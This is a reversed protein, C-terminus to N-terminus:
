GDRWRPGLLGAGYLVLIALAVTGLLTILWQIFKVWWTAPHWNDTQGLPFLPFATEAAYLLPIFQPHNEPREAGGTKEGRDLYVVPHTPHMRLAECQNWHNKSAEVAVGKWLSFTKELSVGCPLGSFLIGGLFIIGLFWGFFRFPRYGYGITLRLVWYWGKWWWSKMKQQRKKELAFGADRAWNTHGTARFVQMLQEYPQPFFDEDRSMLGAWKLRDEIRKKVAAGKPDDGNDSIKLRQYRFGDIDLVIDNGKDDKYVEADDQFEGLVNAGALSLHTLECKRLILDQGVEAGALWVAGVAKFGDRLFVDSAVKINQANLAINQANLADGGENQFSGGTCVLHGGIDAGALWVAGVAKFGDRLFVDSAVKISQANLAVKDKNQFSGGTCVLQGGIAAGALSAAGVAKFGDRLFVASAVKISQANLANGGENQFSGGTCVLQGGIDAGALWVAGVAKFGDRLFVISAVKINQANLAVKDKNQFSGGTCVLQGGIDAGSLSVAGVAKFGDRLFVASAVKIDQADLAYGGENQFSGGTCVLQGGIDAGSLRVQDMANVKTLYVDGAVKAGLADIGEKLTCGGFDLEPCTLQQLRIKQSFSCDRFRVPFRTECFEMDLVDSIIAGVIGTGRYDAKEDYDGLFLGRLFEGRVEGKAICQGAADREAVDAVLEGARFAALVKGEALTLKEEEPIM